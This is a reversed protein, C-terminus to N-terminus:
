NNQFLMGADREAKENLFAFAEMIAISLGVLSLIVSVILFLSLDVSLTVNQETVSVVSPGFESVIYFLILVARAGNFMSHFITGKTLTGIAMFVIFVIVIAQITSGFGPVSDFLSGVYLWAVEFLLYFVLAKLSAELARFVVEKKTISNNTVRRVLLFEGHVM